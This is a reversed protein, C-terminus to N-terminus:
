PYKLETIPKKDYGKLPNITHHIPTIRMTLRIKVVIIRM